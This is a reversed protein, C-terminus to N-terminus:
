SNIPQMGPLHERESRRMPKKRNSSLLTFGTSKWVYGVQYNQSPIICTPLISSIHFKFLIINWCYVNQKCRDSFLIWPCIIHSLCFDFHLPCVFNFIVCLFLDANALEDVISIMKRQRCWYLSIFKLKEQKFRKM